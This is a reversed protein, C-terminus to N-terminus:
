SVQCRRRVLLVFQCSVRSSTREPDDCLTVIPASSLRLLVEGNSPVRYHGFSVNRARNDHHRGYVDCMIDPEGLVLFNDDDYAWGMGAGPTSAEMMWRM